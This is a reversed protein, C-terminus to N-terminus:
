FCTHLQFLMWVMENLQQNEHCTVMHCSKCICHQWSFTFCRSFKGIQSASNWVYRFVVLEFWRFNTPLPKFFTYYYYYYDSGEPVIASTGGQVVSASVLGLSPGPNILRTHIQIIFICCIYRVEATCSSDHKTLFRLCPEWNRKYLSRSLTPTKADFSFRYNSENLCFSWLVHPLYHTNALSQTETLYVYVLQKHNRRLFQSEREIWGWKGRLGLRAGTMPAMHIRVTQCKVSTGTRILMPNVSKSSSMNLACATTRAVGQIM